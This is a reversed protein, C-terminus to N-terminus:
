DFMQGTEANRVVALDVPGAHEPHRSLAASDAACRVLAVMLEVARADDLVQGRALTRWTTFEIALGLAADRLPAQVADDLWGDALVAQWRAPLQLFRQLGSPPGGDLQELILPLDREINAFITENRGYYAYLEALAQRLRQEPDAIQCWATPDPPPDLAWFYTTCAQFIDRDHPFHKYVTLRQVGAREAIASITTRAPGVSAHLEYTARAIRQRTEGMREARAKLRLKRTPALPAPLAPAPDLSAGSRPGRGDTSSCEHDSLISM